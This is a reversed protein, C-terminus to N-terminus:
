IGRALNELNTQTLEKAYAEKILETSRQALAEGLVYGGHELPEVTPSKAKPKTWREKWSEKDM